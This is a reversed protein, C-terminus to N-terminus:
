QQAQPKKKRHRVARHKKAVVPSRNFPPKKGAVAVAATAPPPPFADSALPGSVEESYLKRYMSANRLVAFVYNRTESFPISEIFEAPERYDGWGMWNEVRSTGANYAALTREWHGMNADYMTRLYTTGLRLNLEPRFLVSARFSRRPAKLLLRGTSPLIQTLGYAQAPSVAQPNFESEQRVLGAVIYPDLGHLRANRELESRWPMPYLLRWFSAPAGEVPIQIYAPVLSKVLQLARYPQTYKGAVQALRVALLQPQDELRAGYRLEEEALDELGAAALLRARDLRAQTAPTPDFKKELRWVPWVVGNLFQGVGASDVAGFVAPQTLRQDALDAYYANPYREGIQSYFVKAAPPDDAEALRGLFYLAAGAHDSGPYKLLHERLLDAADPQRHIYEYWAVKWHCYDAQPGTFSEYCARYIPLYDAARNEVLYRNGAAVLAKLRWPSDPYRELRQLADKLRDDQDLRRSCEALFYLREADAEPSSLDLSRLYSYALTTETSYYDLEGLRVRVLERDVGGVAPLMAQYEVRAHRIDGGRALRGAREFMAQTTPPPYLEGLTARLESLAPAAEAAEASLPYQYYVQQYFVAASALDGSARYCEALLTDGSPQPLQAYHERLVNTGDAPKASQKYARAAVLAAQGALPSPPVANWVPELESIAADFDGLDFEAAGLSYAIYDALQPLRDRVAKLDRVAAAPQKRGQEDIGAKLLALDAAAPAAGFLTATLFIASAARAANARM